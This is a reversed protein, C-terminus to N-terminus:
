HFMFESNRVNRLNADGMELEPLEDMSVGMQEALRQPTNEECITIFAEKVNQRVLPIGSPLTIVADHITTLPRDGWNKFAERLLAADLSHVYNPAFASVMKSPRPTDSDGTAVRMEGLTQSVTRMTEQKASWYDVNFGDHTQWNLRPFQGAVMQKKISVSALTTLWDMLDLARPFVLRTASRMYTTLTDLMDGHFKWSEDEGMQRSIGWQSLSIGMDERLVKAITKRTGIWKSGYPLPLVVGKGMKRVGGHWLIEKLLAHHLDSIHPLKAAADAGLKAILASSDDTILERAAGIVKMYGDVPGDGTAYDMPLLVNTNTLGETDLINGSLIQLGSQSADLSLGIDWLADDQDWRRHCYLLKLLDWPEDAQAKVVVSLDDPQNDLLPLIQHIAQVGFERRAIRSIKDGKWAVGIAEHIADRQAKTTIQEGDRFRILSKEATSSQPHLFTQQPYKRGRYDCSWSFFLEDFRQVPKIASLTELTRFYKAEADTAETYQDKRAKKYAQVEPSDDAWNILGEERKRDHERGQDDLEAVTPSPKLPLKAEKYRHDIAWEFAAMMEHDPKYATRGLINLLDIAAQNPSSQNGGVDSGRIVPNNSRLAPSYYGGSTPDDLTWQKPEQIMPYGYAKGQSYQSMLEKFSHILSEVPRVRAYDWKKGLWKPKIKEVLGMRNIFVESLIRGAQIQEEIPWEYLSLDFEASQAIKRFSNNMNAVKNGPTQHKRNWTSRLEQHMFPDNVYCVASKYEFQLARGIRQYISSIAPWEDSDSRGISVQDVFVKMVVLALIDFASRTGPAFPAPIAASPPPLRKLGQEEKIEQRRQREAAVATPTVDLALGIMEVLDRLAQAGVAKLHLKEHREEFKTSLAQLRTQGDALESRLLKRGHTSASYYGGEGLRKHEAILAQHREHHSIRELEEQDKALHGKREKLQDTSNLKM